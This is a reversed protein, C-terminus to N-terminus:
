EGNYELIGREVEQRHMSMRHEENIRHTADLIAWVKEMTQADSINERGAIPVSKKIIGLECQVPPDLISVTDKLIEKWELYKSM